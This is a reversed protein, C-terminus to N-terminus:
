DQRMPSFSMRHFACPGHQRIAEFHARTGYGKHKEFGYKPFLTGTLVMQRDRVVKAIISAAAISLSRGDGKILTKVDIDLGPPRDRGDVLAIDAMVPLGIVANRMALLSAMRINIRDITTAPVIAISVAATQLIQDFLAERTKASLKKSDNLGPPINERDLVVSAAVVPGALPGRGAEDVGAIATKGKSAYHQEISFDPGDPQPFIDPTQHM